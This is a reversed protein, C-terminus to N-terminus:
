RVQKGGNRWGLKQGIEGELPNVKRRLECLAQRENATLQEGNARRQAARLQRPTAKSKVLRLCEQARERQEQREEDDEEDMSPLRPQSGTVPSGQSDLPLMLNTDDPDDDASLLDSEPLLV